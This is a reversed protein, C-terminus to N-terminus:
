VLISYVNDKETFGSYLDSFLNLVDKQVLTTVKYDGDGFNDIQSLWFYKYQNVKKLEKPLDKAILPYNESANKWEEGYPNLWTHIDNLIQPKSVINSNNCMHKFDFKWHILYRDAVKLYKDIDYKNNYYLRLTDNIDDAYTAIAYQADSVYSNLQKTTVNKNKAKKNLTKIRNAIIEKDLQIDKLYKEPLKM